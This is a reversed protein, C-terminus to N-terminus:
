KCREGKEKKSRCEKDRGIDFLKNTIGDYAIAKKKSARKMM